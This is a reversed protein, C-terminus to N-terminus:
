AYNIGQPVDEGNCEFQDASSSEGAELEFIAHSITMSQLHGIVFLAAM